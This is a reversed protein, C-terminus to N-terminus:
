ESHRLDLTLVQGGNREACAVVSADVMGLPLDAYRRVLERIRGYDREGCDLTFIGRDLDGLFADLADATARRELLYATECLIPAPVLWPGPERDLALRVRDHDKDRRNLYAFLGSTDLSIV